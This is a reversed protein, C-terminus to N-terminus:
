HNEYPLIKDLDPEIERLPTMVFDRERMRPHPLILDPTDLRLNDFLLIDIDITRPGNKITRKRGLQKEITNIKELLDIPSLSTEAKLVANLFQGQPPGGVPETELLRSVKQIALGNKKLEEIALSINKGREGQNSGLGLYVIAM